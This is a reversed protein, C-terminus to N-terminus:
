LNLLLEAFDVIRFTSKQTDAGEGPIVRLFGATPTEPSIHQEVWELDFFHKVVAVSLSFSRKSDNQQMDPPFKAIANLLHQDTIKSFKSVTTAEIYSLHRHDCPRPGM